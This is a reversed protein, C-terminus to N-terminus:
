HKGGFEKELNARLSGFDKNVLDCIMWRDGFLQFVATNTNSERPSYRLVVPVSICGDKWTGPGVKSIKPFVDQTLRLFDADLFAAEGPAGVAGKKILTRFKPEYYKDLMKADRDSPHHFVIKTTQVCRAIDDAGPVEAAPSASIFAFLTALFASFVKIM